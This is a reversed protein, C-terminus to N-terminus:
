QHPDRGGTQRCQLDGDPLPAPDAPYRLDGAIEDGADLRGPRNRYRKNAERKLQSGLQRCRHDALAPVIEVLLSTGPLSEAPKTLHLFCPWTDAMAQSNIRPSRAIASPPCNAVCFSLQRAM